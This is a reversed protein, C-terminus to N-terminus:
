KENEVNSFSFPHFSYRVQADQNIHVCAYDCNGILFTPYHSIELKLLHHLIGCVTGEHGVILVRDDATWNKKEYEFWNQVRSLMMNLSEGNPYKLDPYLGQYRYRADVRFLEDTTIPSYDGTNLEIMDPSFHTECEANIHEITQKARTLPSCYIRSFNIKSLIACVAKAQKHGMESLPYDSAGCVLSQENSVSRGHRLLYIQMSFGM